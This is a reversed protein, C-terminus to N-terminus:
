VRGGFGRWIECVVAVAAAAAPRGTVKVGGNESLDVGHRVAVAMAL